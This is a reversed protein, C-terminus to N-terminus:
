ENGVLSLVEDLILGNTAIGRGSHITPRGQWDTFTGGAEQMIPLMPGADWVSMRPDVMLDARGTALMTYGYGDGWTRCVRVISQLRMYVEHRGIESFGEVESTIFTVDALSSRRSVRAPKPADVGSVQWAGMGAAAYVCQDLAPLCIVGLISEGDQEVSVLTSYLPVGHVFSLTGDIPDLLWRFGTTGPKDDFEEGLIADNPFEEDIQKRLSQEAQRDAITVPSDDDKLEVALDDHRFHDLTLRGATRAARVAFDLRNKM